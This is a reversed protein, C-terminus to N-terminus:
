TGHNQEGPVRDALYKGADNLETLLEKKISEFVIRYRDWMVEVDKHNYLLATMFAKAQAEDMNRLFSYMYELAM